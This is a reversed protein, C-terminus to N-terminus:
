LTRSISETVLRALNSAAAKSHEGLQKLAAWYQPHLLAYTIFAPMRLQGNKGLFRNFDPLKDNAGDSIGKFCYFAIGKESALRAVTAAEMDVLPAQYREAIKRKEDHRAVHDLTVLRYGETSATPYLEGTISDAVESITFAGPPKIGCSLSGAWGISLLADLPGDGFVLECASEASRAGMGASVAICEVVGIRGAHVRGERQWGQVLPKLEGPLAAIIGIRKM